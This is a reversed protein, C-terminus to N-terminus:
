RLDKLNRITTVGRARLSAVQRKKFNDLDKGINLLRRAIIRGLRSLHRALMVLARSDHSM